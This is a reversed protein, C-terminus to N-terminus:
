LLTIIILSFKSITAAVVETNARLFTFVVISINSLFTRAVLIDVVATGM